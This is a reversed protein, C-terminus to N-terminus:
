LICLIESFVSRFDFGDFVDVEIAPILDGGPFKGDPSRYFSFLKMDVPAGELQLNGICVQDIDGPTLQLCGPRPLHAGRMDLAGVPGEAGPVFQALSLFEGKFCTARHEPLSSAEPRCSDGIM